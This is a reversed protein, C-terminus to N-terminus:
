KVEGSARDVATVNSGIDQLYVTDSTVIPNASFVGFTSEGTLPVSWAKELTGINSANIRGGVARTNHYDGNPAPFASAADTVEAPTGAPFVAPASAESDDDGCAVLGGGLAVACLVAGLALRPRRLTRRPRRPPPDHKAM